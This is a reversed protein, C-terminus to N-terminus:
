EPKDEPKKDQEALASAIRQKELILYWDLELSSIRGEIVKMLNKLAAIEIGVQSPSRPQKVGSYVVTIEEVNLLEEARKIYAKIVENQEPANGMEPVAASEPVRQEQEEREEM